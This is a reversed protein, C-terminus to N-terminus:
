YREIMDNLHKLQQYIEEKAAPNIHGIKVLPCGSEIRDNHRGYELTLIKVPTNQLVWEIHDYLDEQICMHAQLDDDKIQWGNMHVEYIKDLPLANVYDMFNLQNDFSYKYAHSIDYLFNIGAQNVVESIVSPDQEYPNKGRPLNEIAIFKMDKFSSKLYLINDVSTDITAQRSMDETGGSFHLSIGETESLDCVEQFAELDFKKKFNPDGIFINSPFSGHYVVPRTTKIIKINNKYVEFDKFGEDNALSPYKIFDVHCKGEKILEMLESSYNCALKIM